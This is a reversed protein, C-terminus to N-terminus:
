KTALVRKELNWAPMRIEITEYIRTNLFHIATWLSQLLGRLEPFPAIIAKYSWFM